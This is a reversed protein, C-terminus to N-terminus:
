SMKGRRHRLLREAAKLDEYSNIGLVEQSDQGLMVGVNKHEINGIEIIDTLYLEKQANDPRLRGLTEALFDKGACYIGANIMRIRRIAESADAEEVIREFRGNEDTVIRGYGGPDEIEVALVTLDRGAQVHEDVMRRATNGTLFPVDGCLILVQETQPPLLPLACQVAHGTGLQEKQDAFIVDAAKSVVRRVQKAQHGVVLVVNDGAVQRATEVVHLIMPRGDLEHLVKARDSKMRTGLGAALIVAAVKKPDLTTQGM